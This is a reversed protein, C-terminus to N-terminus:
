FKNKSLPSLLSFSLSLFMLQNGRMDGLWPGPGCGLCTGQNPILGAVKLNTPQHEIGQAVGAPAWTYLETSCWRYITNHEGGLTVDGGTVTVGGIILECKSTFASLRRECHKQKTYKPTISLLSKFGCDKKINTIYTWQQFSSFFLFHISYFGGM